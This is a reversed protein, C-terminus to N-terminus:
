PQHLSEHRSKSLKSSIESLNSSYRRRGGSFGPSVIVQSTIAPRWAARPCRPLGADGERAALLCPAEGVCIEKTTHKCRERRWASRPAATRLLYNGPGRSPCRGSTHTRSCSDLSRQNLRQMERSAIRAIGAGPRRTASALKRRRNSSSDTKSAFGHSRQSFSNHMSPSRCTPIRHRCGTWRLRLQRTSSFRYM